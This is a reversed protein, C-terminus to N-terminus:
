QDWCCLWRDLIGLRGRTDMRLWQSDSGTWTTGRASARPTCATTLTTLMVKDDPYITHGQAVESEKDKEGGKRELALLM